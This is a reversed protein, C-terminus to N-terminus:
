GTRRSPEICEAGDEAKMGSLPIGMSSLSISHLGAAGRAPPVAWSLLPIYFLAFIRSYDSM